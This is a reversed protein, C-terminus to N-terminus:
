HEGPTRVSVPENEMVPQGHGTMHLPEWFCFMGGGCREIMIVSESQVEGRGRTCRTNCKHFFYCKRNTCQLLVKFVNRHEFIGRTMEFLKQPLATEETKVWQNIQPKIVGTTRSNCWHNKKWVRLHKWLRSFIRYLFEAIFSSITYIHWISHSLMFAHTHTEKIHTHAESGPPFATPQPEKHQLQHATLFPFHYKPFYGLPAWHRKVHQV